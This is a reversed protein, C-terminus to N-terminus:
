DLVVDLLHHLREPLLEHCLPPLLQLVGELNIERYFWPFSFYLNFLDGRKPFLHHELGPLM